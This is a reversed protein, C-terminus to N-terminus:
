SPQETDVSVGHVARFSEARFSCRRDDSGQYNLHDRLRGDGSHDRHAISPRQLGRAAPLRCAAAEVTIPERNIHPMSTEKILGLRERAYREM